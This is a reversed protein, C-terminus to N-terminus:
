SFPQAYRLVFTADYKRVTVRTSREWKLDLGYIRSRSKLEALHNPDALGAELGPPDGIATVQYPGTLRSATNVLINVGAYFFSSTPVVRQDNVAVAEAGEAWLLNVLDQLDQYHVIWGLSRDTPDNPNRGDHVTVTVGPGHLTSLGVAVRERDLEQKAAEAASSHKASEDELGQVEAQLQQVSARLRNRQGELDAVSQRLAQDRALRNSSVVPQSRLQTAALLAVLFAALATSALVPARLTM